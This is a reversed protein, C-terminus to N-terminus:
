ERRAPRVPRAPRVVPGRGSLGTPPAFLFSAGVGSLGLGTFSVLALVILWSGPSAWRVLGAYRLLGALGLLGTGVLAAMGSRVRRLEAEQWGLLLAVGFTLCWAGLVRVDLARVQWPWDRALVDPVLYLLLGCAAFVLGNGIIPAAVWWPLRPPRPAPQGNRARWRTNRRWQAGFAILGLLPAAAHGGLWVWASLVAVAGGQALHLTGHGLLCAGLTLLVLLSSAAVAVRVRVWQEACLAMALMLCSGGYGAGLLTATVPSMRWPFLDVTHGSLLTLDAAGYGAVLLLPALVLGQLVPSVAPGATPQSRM